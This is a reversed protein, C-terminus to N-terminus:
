GSGTPSLRQLEVLLAEGAAQCEPPRGEASGSTFLHILALLPGTSVSSWTASRSTSTRTSQQELEKVQQTQEVQCLQRAGTSLAIQQQRM